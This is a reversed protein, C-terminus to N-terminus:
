SQAGFIDFVQGKGTVYRTTFIKKGKALEQVEYIHCLASNGIM